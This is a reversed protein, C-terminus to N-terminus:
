RRSSTSRARTRRDRGRPLDDEEHVARVAGSEDDAHRVEDTRDADAFLDPAAQGRPDPEPDRREAGDGRVALARGSGSAKPILTQSIVGELVFSLVARIQAQQHSPFVDVIRNISQIASNTHLTAFCSTAPRPSRSRRGRDDRPRADRRDPRRRSGPAPHVQARAQVVPTDRASRASTSWASSTRTSSSSRIRSRSSTAASSAHQHSRDDVRADDVQGLRDARHRAGPRAASRVARDRGAAARSERAPHGPVARAPVRGGVCSQQMYVNARFRALGRIGFSFDIELDEEFRLKQADNMVSYCLTKTDVPTSRSPRCGCWSTTSACGRRRAPPSTCTRRARTSCRRSCHRCASSPCASTM